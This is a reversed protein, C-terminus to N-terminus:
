NNPRIKMSVQKMSYFDVKWHYWVIGTENGRQADSFYRGNLNSRTCHRYWWAGHREIACNDDYEDNDRDYTSFGVGNLSRSYDELSNDICFM